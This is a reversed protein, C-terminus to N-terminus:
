DICKTMEGVSLMFPFLEPFLSNGSCHMPQSNKKGVPFQPGLVSIEFVLIINSNACLCFVNEGRQYSHKIAKFKFLSWIYIDEEGGGGINLVFIEPVAYENVHTSTKNTEEKTEKVHRRPTGRAEVAGM